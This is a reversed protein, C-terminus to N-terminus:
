AARAEVMGRHERGPWAREIDRIRRSMMADFAERWRLARVRPGLKSVYGEDFLVSMVLQREPEFPADPAVVLAEGGRELAIKGPALTDDRVTVSVGRRALLRALLRGNKGFGLIEIPRRLDCREILNMAIAAPRCWLSAAIARALEGRASVGFGPAAIGEDELRSWWAELVEAYRHLETSWARQGRSESAPLVALATLAWGAPDLPPEPPAVALTRWARGKEASEDRLLDMHAYEFAVRRLRESERRASLEIGRETWGLSRARHFASAIARCTAKAGLLSDRSRGSLRQRYAGVVSGCNAWRVGRLALSLWLEYDEVQSSPDFRLEGLSERAIMQGHISFRFRELMEDLGVSLAPDHQVAFRCGSEDCLELGGFSAGSPSREARAFLDSLGDRLMWDDSDLFVIYRGMAAELGRNRAAGPGQQAQRINLIRADARAMTAVIAPGDDSSGDDVVIAEWDTLRQELLSALTRGVFPAANHLPVIVSVAPRM